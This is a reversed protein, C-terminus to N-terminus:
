HRTYRTIDQQYTSQDIEREGRFYYDQGWAYHVKRLVIEHDPFRVYHYHTTKFREEVVKEEVKPAVKTSSAPGALTLSDRMRQADAKALALLLERERENKTAQNRNIEAEREQKAREQQYRAIKIEDPTTTAGFYKGRGQNPGSTAESEAVIELLERERERKTELNQRIEEDRQLRESAYNMTETAM